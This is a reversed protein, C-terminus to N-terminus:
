VQLTFIQAEPNSLSKSLMKQRRSTTSANVKCSTTLLHKFFYYNISLLDLSFPLHPLVKYGLENLKQLTPQTVHPQANHQLLISGKQQSIGAALTVTETCRMSKSLMSRLYLPKAPIWFATSFWVGGFLSWSRKKNCTQSQPKSRVEKTFKDDSTTRYFASETVHWLRIPFHNTTTTYFLFLRCKLNKQNETLEHPM